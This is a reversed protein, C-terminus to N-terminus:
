NVSKQQRELQEIQNQLVAIKYNLRERHLCQYRYKLDVAYILPRTWDPLEVREQLKRACWNLMDSFPDFDKQEEGSQVWIHDLKQRFTLSAPAKAHLSDLAFQLRAYHLRTAIAQGISALLGYVVM